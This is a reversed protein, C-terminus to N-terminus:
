LHKLNSWVGENLLLLVLNQAVPLDYHKKYAEFLRGGGYHVNYKKIQRYAEKWVLASPKFLYEWYLESGNYTMLMGYAKLAKKVIIDNESKLYPLILEIDKSSGHEAIDLIAVLNKNEKLQNKYYDLVNFDTNQRLIFSVNDRIKKSKDMLMLELGLWSTKIKRYKYELAKFRVITNKNLLYSDVEDMSCEYNNLIGQIILGKGYGTKEM